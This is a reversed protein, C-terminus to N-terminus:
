NAIDAYICLFLPGGGEWEFRCFITGRRSLSAKEQERTETHLKSPKELNPKITTTGMAGSDQGESHGAIRQNPQNALDTRGDETKDCAASWLPICGELPFDVVSLLKVSALELTPLSKM